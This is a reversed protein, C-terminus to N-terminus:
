NERSETDRHDLQRRVRRWYPLTTQRSHGRPGGAHMRARQRDTAAGYRDWYWIMVRECHPRSGVLEDYDWDAGGHDCGDAWYARTIQYPGRSRGGDGVATAPNPEGGTEVARIADLLKRYQRAPGNDRKRDAGKETQPVVSPDETVTNKENYASGAAGRHYFAGAASPRGNGGAVPVRYYDARRPREYGGAPLLSARGSAGAKARYPPSGRLEGIIRETAAVAWLGTLTALMGALMGIRIQSQRNDIASKPNRIESKM